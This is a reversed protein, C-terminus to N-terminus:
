ERIDFIIEEGEQFSEMHFIGKLKNKKAKKLLDSLEAVQADYSNQKGLNIEIEGSYLTVENKENFAIQDIEIEYRTILQFLELISQFVDENEVELKEYLNMKLFKVGKILPVHELRESSSEIVIGDKDFYLYEGMHLLCGILMKEYVQIQIQNHSKLEVEIEEIFPLEIEKGYKSKLYLILTNKDWFSKVVKEKIQEEKYFENGVVTIKELRFYIGVFLIIGFLCIIAFWSFIKKIMRKRKLQAIKQEKELM